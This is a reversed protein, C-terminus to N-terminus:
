VETEKRPIRMKALHARLSAAEIRVPSSKSKGLKIAIILGKEIWRRITWRSVRAIACAEPYTLLEPLEEKCENATLAEVLAQLAKEDISM